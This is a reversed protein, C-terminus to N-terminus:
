PTADTLVVVAKPQALALDMRLTVRIAISDQAALTQDAIFVSADTDRVVVVHRMDAIIVTGNAVRNTPIVRVGFLAFQDAAHADPDLVYAKDATGRQIKRLAVWDVPNMFIVNPTVNEAYALALGDLISNLDTDDFTGTQVGSQNIVGKITNSTGPGSFLAADLANAVDTVLRNQLVSTLGTVASGRVLENSLPLWVKLSQLSSPLAQIEDFAVDGDPITAGAGVFGATVGNVIRPIRVPSNSDIITPGAALFTSAQELPQVLLQQVQSQILTPNSAPTEIAM